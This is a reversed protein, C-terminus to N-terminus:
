VTTVYYNMLTRVGSSCRQGWQGRGWNPILMSFINCVQHITTKIQMAYDKQEEGRETRREQVTELKRSIEGQYVQKGNGSNLPDSEQTFCRNALNVSYFLICGVQSPQVLSSEELICGAEEVFAALIFQLEWCVGYPFPYHLSPHVPSSEAKM